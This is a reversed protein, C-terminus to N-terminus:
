HLEVCLLVEDKCVRVFGGSVPLTEKQGDHSYVVDGKELVSMIPAHGKLVVFGSGNSGPVSVMDANGEYHIKEPSVLKLLM